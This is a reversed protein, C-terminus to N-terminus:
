SMGLKVQDEYTLKSAALAIDRNSSNYRLLNNVLAYDKGDFQVQAHASARAVDKSFVALAKSLDDAKFSGWDRLIRSILEMSAGISSMYAFFAPTPAAHTVGMSGADGGKDGKGKGSGQNEDEDQDNDAGM